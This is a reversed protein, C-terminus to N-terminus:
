KKTLAERLAVELTNIKAELTKVRDSSEEAVISSKEVNRSKKKLQERLGLISYYSLLFGGLAGYLAMALYAIGIDWQFEMIPPYKAVVPQGMNVYSFYITDLFILIGLILWLKKM